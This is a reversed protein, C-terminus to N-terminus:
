EMLLNVVAVGAGMLVVLVEIMVVVMVEFLTVVEFRVEVSVEDAEFSRTEGFNIAIGDLTRLILSNQLSTAKSNAKIKIQKDPIIQYKNFNYTKSM